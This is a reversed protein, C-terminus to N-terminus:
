WLEYGYKKALKHLELFQPSDKIEKEVDV